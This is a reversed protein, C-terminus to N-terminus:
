GRRWLKFQPIRYGNLMLYGERFEVRYFADSEDHKLTGLILMIFDEDNTISLDKTEIEDRNAFQRKMFALVKKNTYSKLIREKLDDMEWALLCSDTEPPIKLATGPEPKRREGPTYLSFQDIYHQPFLNLSTSLAKQVKEKKREDDESFTKLIEVLKGKISQDTNLLYQMKEVSAKTYVTNKRDIERILVDITEYIDITEGMMTIISEMAEDRAPYINRKLASDIIIEKMESDYMWSKLITLIPTKFRPVSDFTKLPHYVKDAVLEKFRDFHGQLIEKIENQENLMQHYRRINNLLIKLENLLNGTNRHAEALAHYAYDNREEQATKLASYTSYVYSNYERPREETINHLTELIKISYDYLTIYEEFSQAYYEIDIWGTQQLRRVLYYAMSSLNIEAPQEENEWDIQMMQDELNAILMSVFQEKQIFMYQKYARYLVFLSELYIEKNKSVLISFLNEPIIRFLNM